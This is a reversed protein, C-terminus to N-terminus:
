RDPEDAARYRGSPPRRDLLKLLKPVVSEPLPRDTIDEGPFAAQHMDTRMDGPDFAYCRLAPVESALTATLQDLAAKASGYGGWGAYGAVAADSSINVLTGASDTLVPLVLQILGLPAFVNVEYTRRMAQMPLLALAPMPTPGLSSANNVLLDLRGLEAIRAALARRHAPDSVDGALATVAGSAPLEAVATALLDGRRGDLVLGWGRAALVQALARGFGASGGTILAVPM